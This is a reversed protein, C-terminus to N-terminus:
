TNNDSLVSMTTSHPSANLWYVPSYTSKLGVYLEIQRRFAVGPAILFQRFPRQPDWFGTDIGAESYSARSVAHFLNSRLVGIRVWEVWRPRQLLILWMYLSELILMWLRMMGLVKYKTGYRCPTLSCWPDIKKQSTSSLHQNDTIPAMWCSKPLRFLMTLLFPRHQLLLRRQSSM